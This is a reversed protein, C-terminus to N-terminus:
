LFALALRESWTLTIDEGKRETLSTSGWSEEVASKAFLSIAQRQESSIWPTLLTAVARPAEHNPCHGVNALEVYRHIAEPHRQDLQALIQKAFAPKCWPDDRGFVLLVDCSLSRLSAEFNALRQQSPDTSSSSPLEVRIPPSWLISAFAAHGGPGETCGRIQEMLTQDFADHNVYCNELFQKITEWDRIRDFLYRGVAKPLFPAPLHGSWGPLNLGWVPTANMLCLSAVLDPRKAACFVALHGGVSNGALHIQQIGPHSPLIVQEIFSLIQDVWTNGCYRLGKECDSQGDQCAEPWSGGQGLYDICYITRGVNEDRQMLENLLRHQHFSGVGFGNLVLLPTKPYIDSAADKSADAAQATEYAIPHDRFRWVGPQIVYPHCAGTVVLLLLLWRRASVSSFSMMTTPEFVQEVDLQLNCSEGLGKM